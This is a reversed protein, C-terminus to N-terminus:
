EGEGWLAFNLLYSLLGQRCEYLGVCCCGCLFGAGCLSVMTFVGSHALELPSQLGVGFYLLAASDSFCYESEGCIHERVRMM